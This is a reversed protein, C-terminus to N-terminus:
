VFSLLYYWVASHYRIMFLYKGCRMVESRTESKLKDDRYRDQENELFNLHLVAKGNVVGSAVAQNRDHVHLLHCLLMVYVSLVDLQM